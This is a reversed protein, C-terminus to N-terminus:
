NASYVRSVEVICDVPKLSKTAGKSNISTSYVGVQVQVYVGVVM